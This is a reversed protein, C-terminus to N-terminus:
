KAANAQKKSNALAKAVSNVPPNDVLKPAPQNIAGPSGYSKPNPM